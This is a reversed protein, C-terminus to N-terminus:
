LIIKVVETDCDGWVVKGECESAKQRAEEINEAEVEIEGKELCEIEFTYKM